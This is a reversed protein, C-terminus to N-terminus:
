FPDEMDLAAMRAAHRAKEDERNDLARRVSDWRCWACGDEADSHSPCWGNMADDLLRALAIVDDDCAMMRPDHQVQIARGTRPDEEIDHPAWQARARAILHAISVPSFSTMDTM